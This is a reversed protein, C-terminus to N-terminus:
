HLWYVCWRLPLREACRKCQFWGAGRRGACIWRGRGGASFVARSVPFDAFSCPEGCVCRSLAQACACACRIDQSRCCHRIMDGAHHMSSEARRCFTSRRPAARLTLDHLMSPFAGDGVQEAGAHRRHSADTAMVLRIRPVADACMLAHRRSPTDEAIPQPPMTLGHSLRAAAAVRRVEVAYDAYVEERVRAVAEGDHFLWGSAACWRRRSAADLGCPQVCLMAAFTIFQAMSAFRRHCLQRAMVDVM